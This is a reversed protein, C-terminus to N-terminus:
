QPQEPTPTSRARELVAALELRVGALYDRDRQSILNWDFAARKGDDDALEIAGFARDALWKVATIKDATKTYRDCDGEIVELMFDVLKKGDQTHERIYRALGILGRPKGSPNGSQGPPFPKLNPFGSISGNGGTLQHAAEGM